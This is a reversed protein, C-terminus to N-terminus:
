SSRKASFTASGMGGMDLDGKMEDTGVVVGTFTLVPSDGTGGGSLVFRVDRGKITGEIQRVGLRPSEYTGTLKEGDQKLTVTPHGTGNDTVVDFAWKGTVNPAQQAALTTRSPLVVALAALAISLIFRSRTM